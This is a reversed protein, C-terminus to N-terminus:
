RPLLDGQELMVKCLAEQNARVDAERGAKIDWKIKLM